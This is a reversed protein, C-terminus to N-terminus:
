KNINTKTSKRQPKKRKLNCEKCLVRLIANKRHFEIWQQEFEKDTKTFIKSNSEHQNFTIPSEDKWNELFTTVLDLFQPEHHDTHMNATTTHCLACKMISNKKFEKTQPDISNRMAKYLKDNISDAKRSICKYLSVADEEGNNKVIITELNKYNPNSRIKIDVMGDFKEPYNPHRKFLYVFGDWEEPYFQKISTCIGIEHIKKFVCQKLQEKTKCTAYM